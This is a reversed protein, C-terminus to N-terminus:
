KIGVQNNITQNAQITRHATIKGQNDFTFFDVDKVRFSKGTPKLGMMKFKFTGVWDAFVAAHHEDAIVVFNKGKFDPFATLFIKLDAKISDVGKIPPGGTSDGYTIANPAYDKFTGEYDHNSMAQVSMLATLRNRNMVSDKTALTAAPVRRGDADKCSAIAMILGIASIIIIKM